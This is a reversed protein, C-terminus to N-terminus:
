IRTRAPRSWFHAPKEEEETETVENHYAPTDPGPTIRYREVVREHTRETFTFLSVFAAFFAWVLLLAGLATCAVGGLVAPGTTTLDLHLVSGAFPYTLNFGTTGHCYGLILTLGSGLFVVAGILPRDARM